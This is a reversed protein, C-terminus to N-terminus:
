LRGHASSRHPSDAYAVTKVIASPFALGASHCHSLPGPFPLRIAALIASRDPDAAIPEVQNIRRASRPRGVLRQGGQWAAVVLSRRPVSQWFSLL